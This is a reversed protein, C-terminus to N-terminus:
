PHARQRLWAARNEPATSLLERRLEARDEPPTRQALVALDARQREDMARLAAELADRQAEPVLAFLGHLGPWDAGLDPGLLWGAREHADLEAFAADLAQRRDEPLEAYLSAAHRLRAREVDAMANWARWADRRARREGLSLADWRQARERLAAREAPPMAQLAAHRRVLREREAAPLSAALRQLDPPLGSAIRAPLALLLGLACARLAADLSM